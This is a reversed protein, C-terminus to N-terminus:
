GGLVSTVGTRDEIALASQGLKDRCPGIYGMASVSGLRIGGDLLPRASTGCGRALGASRMVPTLNICLILAAGVYGSASAAFVFAVPLDALGTHDCRGTLGPGM